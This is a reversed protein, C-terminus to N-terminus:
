DHCIIRYKLMDFEVDCGASSGTHAAWSLPGIIMMPTQMKTLMWVMNRAALIQVLARM